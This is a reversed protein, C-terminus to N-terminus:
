GKPKLVNAIALDLDADAQEVPQSVSPQIPAAQAVPATLPQAQSPTPSAQEATGAPPSVSNQTGTNPTPAAPMAGGSGFISLSPAPHTAPHAVGAPVAMTTASPERQPLSSPATSGPSQSTPPVTHIVEGEIIRSAAPATGMFGLGSTLPSGAPAVPRPPLFAGSGNSSAAEPATTGHTAPALAQQTTPPPPLAQVQRISGGIIRGVVPSARLEKILPAEADTLEKAWTFIMEPWAKPAFTIETIYTWTKTWGAKRTLDALDTLGHLSAPPVRLFVPELLDEGLLPRTYVPLLLVALRKYDTCDRTQRGTKPNTYFQNNPCIACAEAQKQPVDADPTEGNLSSCLPRKGSNDNPDFEGPPYYSKSKVAAASLIVAHISQAPRGTQPDQITYTSGKYRLTWVKGRYGLIAYSQGIGADLNDDENMTDDFAASPRGQIANMPLSM